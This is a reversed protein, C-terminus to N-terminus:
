GFDCLQESKLGAELPMHEKPIPESQLRAEKLMHDVVQTQTSESSTSACWFLVATAPGQGEKLTHTLSSAGIAAKTDM